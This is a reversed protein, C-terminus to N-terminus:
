PVTQRQQQQGPAVSCLFVPRVFAGSFGLSIQAILIRSRSDALALSRASNLRAM